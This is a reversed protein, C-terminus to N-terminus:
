YKLFKSSVKSVNNGISIFYVGPALRSCNLRISSNGAEGILGFPDIKQGTEDYINIVLKNLQAAGSVEISTPNVQSNLSFSFDPNTPIEDSTASQTGFPIRYIFQGIQPNSYEAVNLYICDESFYFDLTAENYTGASEYFQKTSKTSRRYYSTEFVNFDTLDSNLKAVFYDECASAIEFVYEESMEPLRLPIREPQNASTLLYFEHGETYVFFNKNETVQLRIPRDNEVHIFEVNEPNELDPNLKVISGNKLLIYIFGDRAVSFDIPEAALSNAISLPKTASAGSDLVSMRNQANLVITKNNKLLVAKKAEQPSEKGPIIAKWTKCSDSSSLLTYDSNEIDLVFVVIYKDDNTQFRSACEITTSESQGAHRTWTTGNDTSRLIGDQHTGCYYVGSPSRFVGTIFDDANIKVRESAALSLLSNLVFLIILILVRIAM